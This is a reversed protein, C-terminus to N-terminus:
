ATRRNLFALTKGCNLILSFCKNDQFVINSNGLIGTADKSFGDGHIIFVGLYFGIDNGRVRCVQLTVGDRVRVEVIYGPRSRVWLGLFTCFLFSIVRYPRGTIQQFVMWISM